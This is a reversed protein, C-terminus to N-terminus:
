FSFTFYVFAWFVMLVVFAIAVLYLLEQLVSSSTQIPVIRYNSRDSSSESLVWRVWADALGWSDFAFGCEEPNRYVDVWRSGVKEQVKYRFKM